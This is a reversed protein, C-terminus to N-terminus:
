FIKGFVKYAIYLKPEFFAVWMWVNLLQMTSVIGILLSAAGLITSVIGTGVDDWDEDKIKKFIKYAILAIGASIFIGAIAEVFAKVATLRVVSLASDIAEPSYQKALEEFSNLYQLAKDGLKDAVTSAFESTKSM